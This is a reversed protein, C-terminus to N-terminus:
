AMPPRFVGLASGRPQGICRAYWYIRAVSAVADPVLPKEMAGTALPSGSAAQCLPLASHDEAAAHEPDAYHLLLFSALSVEGDSARHQSYHAMLDPLAGVVAQGHPVASLLVWWLLLVGSLRRLFASPSPM